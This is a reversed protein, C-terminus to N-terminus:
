WHWKYSNHVLHGVDPYKHTCADENLKFTSSSVLTVNMESLPTFGCPLCALISEKCDM